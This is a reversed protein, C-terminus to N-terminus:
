SARVETITGPAAERLASRLEAVLPLLHDIRSSRARLVVVALGSRRVNQQHQLNRDHTVLVHVGAAAAARLLAGNLLGAWGRQKVTAVDFEDLHPVLDHTVSEDLLM